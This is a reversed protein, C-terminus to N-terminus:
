CCNSKKILRIINKWNYFNDLEFVADDAVPINCKVAGYILNTFIESRNCHNM